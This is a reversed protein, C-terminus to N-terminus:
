LGIFTSRRSDYEDFFVHANNAATRFDPTSSYLGLSAREVGDGSGWASNDVNIVRDPTDVNTGVWINVKGTGTGGIIIEGEIRTVGATLTVDGSTSRCRNSTFNDGSSCAAFTRLKLGNSNLLQLDVIRSIAPSTSHTANSSANFIRVTQTTSLSPAINTTDIYFRFRYHQEVTPTDDYVLAQAAPSTASVFAADMSCATGNLGPGGVTVGNLQAGSNVGGSSSSWAAFPDTPCSQAMASGVAAFGVLGLLALSLTKKVNLTKM